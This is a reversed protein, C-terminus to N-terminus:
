IDLEEPDTGWIEKHFKFAYDAVRSECQKFWEWDQVLGTASWANYANDAEIKLAVYKDEHTM